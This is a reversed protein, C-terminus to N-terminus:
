QTDSLTDKVRDRSGPRLSRKLYAPPVHAPYRPDRATTGRVLEEKGEGGENIKSQGEEEARTRLSGNSLGLTGEWDRGVGKGGEPFSPGGAGPSLEALADRSLAPNVECLWLDDVERRSGPSLDDGHVLSHVPSDLTHRIVLVPAHFVPPVVRIIALPIALVDL